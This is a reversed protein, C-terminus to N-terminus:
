ILPGKFFVFPPTQIILFKLYKSSTKLLITKYIDDNRIVLPKDEYTKQKNKKGGVAGGM